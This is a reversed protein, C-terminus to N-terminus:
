MPGGTPGGLPSLPSPYREIYKTAGGAAPAKYVGAIAAWDGISTALAKESSAYTFVVGSSSLMWATGSDQQGTGGADGDQTTSEPEVFILGTTAGTAACAGTSTSIGSSSGATHEMHDIYLETGGAPSPSYTGSHAMTPVLAGTTNCTGSAADDTDFPSAAAGIIDVFDCYKGTTLAQALTIAGNNTRTPSNNASYLHEVHNTPVGDNKPSHTTHVFSAGSSTPLPTTIDGHTAVNGCMLIQLNGDTPFQYNLTTSTTNGGFQMGALRKVRFTNANQSGQASASAKLEVAGAFYAGSVPATVSAATTGSVTVSSQAPLAEHIDSSELAFNTGATFLGGSVTNQYPVPGQAAFYVLNGSTVGAGWTGASWTTSGVPDDNTQIQVCPTTADINFWESITTQTFNIFPTASNNFTITIKQTGSAVNKAVWFDLQSNTGVGGTGCEAWANSKDDAVGTPKAASTASAFIVLLITNGSTSVNPLRVNYKCNPSAACTIGGQTNPIAAHQVITPTAAWAPAALLLLAFVLAALLRM